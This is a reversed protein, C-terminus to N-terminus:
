WSLLAIELAGELHLHDIAGLQDEVNKRLARAGLLAAELDLRRLQMMQQRPKDAAAVQGAQAGANSRAARALLFQFAIAPADAVTDALELFVDLLDAFLPSQPAFTAPPNGKRHNGNHTVRVAPLRGQQVGQGLRLDLDLVGQEDGEIGGSAQDPQGVPTLHEEGVGDTEDLLEGGVQHRSEPRGEFFHLFGVEQQVHEVGRSVVAAILHLGHVLRQLVQARQFFRLQQGKILDIM